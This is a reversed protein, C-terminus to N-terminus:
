HRRDARNLLKISKLYKGTLSCGGVEETGPSATSPYKWPPATWGRGKQLERCLDLWVSWHRGFYTQGAPKDEISISIKLLNQHSAAGSRSCDRWRPSREGPHRRCPCSHDWEQRWGPREWGWRGSCVVPRAWWSWFMRRWCLGLLLSTVPGGPGWTDLHQRFPLNPSIKPLEWIHVM